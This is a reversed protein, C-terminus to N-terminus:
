SPCKWPARDRALDLVLFCVLFHMFVYLLCCYCFRKRVWLRWVVCYNAYLKPLYVCVHGLESRLVCTTCTPIDCVEVVFYLPNNQVCVCVCVCVCVYVCVCVCAPLCVCVRARARACVCVCVCLRARAPLGVWGRARM